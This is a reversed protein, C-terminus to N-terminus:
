KSNERIGDRMKVSIQQMLTNFMANAEFSEKVIPNALAEKEIEGFEKRDDDNLQGLAQKREMEKKANHLKEVLRAAEENEFIAQEGRKMDKFEDTEALAKGLEVAMDLVKETSSM